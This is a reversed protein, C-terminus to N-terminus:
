VGYAKRFKELNINTDMCYDLSRISAYQARYGMEHEIVTGWLWVTGYIRKVHPSVPFEKMLDYPNKFAWVGSYNHDDIVRGEYSRDTMPTNPQWFCETSMSHLLSCEINWVRHGILEGVVPFSRQLPPHVPAGRDKLVVVRTLGTGQGTLAASGSVSYSSRRGGAASAGGSNGPTSQALTLNRTAKCTQRYQEYAKEKPNLQWYVCITTLVEIGTLGNFSNGKENTLNILGSTMDMVIQWSPPIMENMFKTM